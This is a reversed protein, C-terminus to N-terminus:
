FQEHVRNIIESWTKKKKLKTQLAKLTGSVLLDNILVKKGNIEKIFLLVTRLMDLASLNVRILGIGKSKDFEILRYTIKSGYITGFLEYIKQNIAKILEEKSLEDGIVEIIVWRHKERVM